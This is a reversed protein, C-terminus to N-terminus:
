KSSRRSERERELAARDSPGLEKRNFLWLRRWRGYRRLKRRENDTLDEPTLLRKWKLLASRDISRLLPFVFRRRLTGPRSTHSAAFDILHLTGDAAVLINDRGRLDLHAVGRAHMADVLRYLQEIYPQNPGPDLRVRTLRRGEAYDIVITLPDPRGRLTPIGPIGAVAEYARAERAIQPRGIRRVVWPKERFSKVILKRGGWEILRIDAKIWRAHVVPTFPLTRIQEASPAGPEMAGM